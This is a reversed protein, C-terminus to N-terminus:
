LARSHFSGNAFGLTESSTIQPKQWVTFNLRLVYMTLGLLILRIWLM